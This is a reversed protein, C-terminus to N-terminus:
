RVGVMVFCVIMFKVIFRLLLIYFLIMNSFLYMVFGMEFGSNLVYGGRFCVVKVYVLMWVMMIVKSDFDMLKNKSFSVRDELYYGSFDGIEKEKKVIIVFIM